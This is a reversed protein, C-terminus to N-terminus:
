PDPEREAAHPAADPSPHGMMEAMYEEMILGALVWAAQLKSPTPTAAISRNLTPIRIPTAHTRPTSPSATCPSALGQQRTPGSYACEDLTSM